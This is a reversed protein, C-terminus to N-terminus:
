AELMAQYDPWRAKLHTSLGVTDDDVEEEGVQLKEQVVFDVYEEYSERTTVGEAKAREVIESFLDAENLEINEIM